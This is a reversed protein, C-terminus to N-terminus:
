ESEGDELPTVTIGVRRGAETKYRWSKIIPEYELSGDVKHGGAARRLMKELMDLMRQQRKQANRDTGGMQLADFMTSFLITNGHALGKTKLQREVYHWMYRHSQKLGTLGKFCKPFDGAEIYRGTAMSYDFFPLSKIPDSENRLRIEFDRILKVTKKGEDNAEAEDKAEVEVEYENLMFEADIIPRYTMSSVLRRGNRSRPIKEGTTNIFTGYRTLKLVDEAAEAMTKAMGRAYPNRCGASKLLDSGRIVSEGQLARTNVMDLWYREHEALTDTPSFKSIDADAPARLGIELKGADGVPVAVGEGSFYDQPQLYHRSTPNFVANIAPSIDMVRTVGKTRLHRGTEKPGDFYALAFLLDAQEQDGAEFADAIALWVLLDLMMLQRAQIGERACEETPEVIVPVISASISVAPMDDGGMPATDTPEAAQTDEFAFSIDDDSLEDFEERGAARMAEQVAEATVELTYLGGADTAGPEVRRMLFSGGGPTEIGVGFIGLDVREVDLLFPVLTEIGSLPNGYTVHKERTPVLMSVLAAEREDATMACVKEIAAAARSTIEDNNVTSDTM